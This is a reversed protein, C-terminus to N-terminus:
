DQPGRTESRFITSYRENSDMNFFSIEANLQNIEEDYFPITSIFCLKFGILASLLLGEFQEVLQVVDRMISSQHYDFGERRSRSGFPGSMSFGRYTEMISAYTHHVPKSLGYYLDKMAELPLLEKASFYGRIKAAPPSLNDDFWQRIEEANERHCDSIFFYEALMVAEHLPRFLISSESPVGSRLLYIISYSISIIRAYIIFSAVAGRKDEFIDIGSEHKSHLSELVKVGKEIRDLVLQINNSFRERVEEGVEEKAKGFEEFLLEGIREYLENPHAELFAQFDKILITYEREDKINGILKDEKIWQIIDAPLVKLRRAAEEITISEREDENVM